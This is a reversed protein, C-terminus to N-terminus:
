KSREPDLRPRSVANHMQHNCNVIAFSVRFPRSSVLQGRSKLVEANHQVQGFAPWARAIEWSSIFGM